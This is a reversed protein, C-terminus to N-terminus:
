TPDFGHQARALGSAHYAPQNRWGATAHRRRNVGLFARYAAAEGEVDRQGDAPTRDAISAPDPRM